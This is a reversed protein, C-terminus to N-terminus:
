VAKRRCFQPNREYVPPIRGNVFYIWDSNLLIEDRKTPLKFFIDEFELLKPTLGLHQAPSNLHAKPRRVHVKTFQPVMYNKYVMFLAYRQCMVAHTKSFAITQRSFPAAHKRIILDAHNVPFLINQFNRCAKSSITQHAIKLNRLDEQVVRRYQFHKDSILDFPTKLGWKGYLRTLLTKTALRIASPDYRGLACEIEALREKQWPSMYGKRNMTALNFDYIFLSHFGVAQQLNNVDYQSIAFNELGDLCLPEKIKWDALMQSHFHFAQRSLRLLRIRVCHESVYFLRAIRRIPMGELSFRFIKANLAPDSKKLRYHILNVHECFRRTCKFCRLRQRPRGQNALCPETLGAKTIHGSECFPCSSAM